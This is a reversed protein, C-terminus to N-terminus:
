ASTKAFMLKIMEGLKPQGTRLLSQRFLKGILVWEAALFALLIASTALIELISVGTGLRYLM